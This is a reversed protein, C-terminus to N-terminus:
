AIIAITCVCTHLLTCSCRDISIPMRVGEQKLIHDLVFIAINLVIVGFLANGSQNSNHNGPRKLHSESDRRDPQGQLGSSSAASGSDARCEFRGRGPIQSSLKLRRVAPRAWASCISRAPTCSQLSCRRPLVRALSVQVTSSVLSSNM